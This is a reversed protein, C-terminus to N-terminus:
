PLMKIQVQFNGTLDAGPTVAILMLGLKGDATKFAIIEENKLNALRNTPASLPNSTNPDVDKGDFKLSKLLNDVAQNSPDSANNFQSISFANALRIFKTARPSGAPWKSIEDQYGQGTAFPYDPSYMAAKVNADQLNSFFVFDIKSANERAPLYFKGTVPDKKTKDTGIAYAQFNDAYGLFRNNQNGNASAGLIIQGSVSIGKVIFIVSDKTLVGKSDTVLVLYTLKDDIALSSLNTASAIDNINVETSTSNLTSDVKIVKYDGASSSITRRVELKALKDGGTISVNGTVKITDPIQSIQIETRVGNNLTITVVSAAPNVPDNKKDDGCSAFLISSLALMAVISKITKKM